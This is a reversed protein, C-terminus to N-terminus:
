SVPNLSRCEVSLSCPVCVSSLVSSHWSGLHQRCRGKPVPKVKRDFIIIQGSTVKPTHYESKRLFLCKFATVTIFWLPFWLCGHGVLQLTREALRAAVQLPCSDVFRKFSVHCRGWLIFYLEWFSESSTYVPSHLTLYNQDFDSSSGLSPCNYVSQNTSVTPTLVSLASVM